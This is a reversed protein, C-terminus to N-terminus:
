YVLRSLLARAHTRADELSGHLGMADPLQECLTQVAMVFSGGYEAMVRVCDVVDVHVCGVAAMRIAHRAPHCLLPCLPHTETHMSKITRCFESIVKSDSVPWVMSKRVCLASCKLAEGWVAHKHMADETCAYAPTHMSYSPKYWDLPLPVRRLQTVVESLTPRYRADPHVLACMTVALLAPCARAFGHIVSPNFLKETNFWATDSAWTHTSMSPIYSRYCLDMIAIVLRANVTNERQMLDANMDDEEVISNDFVLCRDSTRVRVNHLGMNPVLALGHSLVAHVGEVMTAVVEMVFTDDNKFTLAETLEPAVFCAPARASVPDPVTVLVPREREVREMGGTVMDLKHAYVADVIKIPAYPVCVHQMQAVHKSTEDLVRGEPLVAWPNTSRVVNFLFKRRTNLIMDTCEVYMDRTSEDTVDFAMRLLKTTSVGEDRAEDLVTKTITLTECALAPADRRQQAVAHLLATGNCEAPTADAGMRQLQEELQACQSSTNRNKAIRTAHARRMGLKIMHNLLTMLQTRSAKVARQAVARAGHTRVLKRVDYGM